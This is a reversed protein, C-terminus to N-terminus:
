LTNTSKRVYKRKPKIPKIPKNTFFKTKFGECSYVDDGVEVFIDEGELPKNTEFCCLNTFDSEEFLECYVINWEVDIPKLKEEVNFKVYMNDVAKDQKNTFVFTEDNDVKSLLSYIFASEFNSGFLNMRMCLAFSNLKDNTSVSM